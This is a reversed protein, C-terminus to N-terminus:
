RPNLWAFPSRVCDFVTETMIGELPDVGQLSWHDQVTVSGDEDHLQWKGGAALRWLESDLIALAEARWKSVIQEDYVKKDWDEKDTIREMINMMAVERVPLLDSTSGRCDGHAGIPYFDTAPDEIHRLPLGLGPYQPM